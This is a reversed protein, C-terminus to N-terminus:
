QAHYLSVVVVMLEVDVVMELEFQIDDAALVADVFRVGALAMREMAVEHAVEKPNELDVASASAQVRQVPMRNKDVSSLSIHHLCVLIHDNYLCRYVIYM